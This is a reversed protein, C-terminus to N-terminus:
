VSALERRKTIENVWADQLPQWTHNWFESVSIDFGYEQELSGESLGLKQLGGEYYGYLQGLVCQETNNIQFITLDVDNFWLPEKEDLLSAGREAREAFMETASMVIPKDLVTPM